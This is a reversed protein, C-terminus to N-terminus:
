DDMSTLGRLSSTSVKRASRSDVMIDKLLFDCAILLLTPDAM